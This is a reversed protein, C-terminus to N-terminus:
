WRIRTTIKNSEIKSLEVLPRVHREEISGGRKIKSANDYYHRRVNYLNGYRSNQRLKEWEIKSILKQCLAYNILGYIKNNSELIHGNPDKFRNVMVRFKIQYLIAIALENSNNILPL